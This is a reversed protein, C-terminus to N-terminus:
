LIADNDKLRRLGLETKADQLYAQRCYELAEELSVECVMGHRELPGGDGSPTYATPREKISAHFFLLREAIMGASPLTWPGLEQFDDPHLHIGVEESTERVATDRPNEGPEILGAPIEWLLGSFRPPSPRMALAPRLCSRLIVYRKQDRIFHLVLAVADLAKRTVIDYTFPESLEHPSSRVQLQTRQITLFGETSHPPSSSTM